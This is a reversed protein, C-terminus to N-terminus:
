CCGSVEVDRNGTSGDLVLCAIAERENWAEAVVKTLAIRSSREAACRTSNTLAGFELAGAVGCCKAARETLV